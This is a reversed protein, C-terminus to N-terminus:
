TGLLVSGTNPPYRTRWVQTDTVANSVSATGRFAVVIQAFTTPGM